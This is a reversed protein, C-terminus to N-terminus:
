VGTDIQDDSEPLRQSTYWPSNRSVLMSKAITRSYFKEEKHLKWIHAEENQFSKPGEHGCDHPSRCKTLMVYRQLNEAFSHFRTQLPLACTNPCSDDKNRVPRAGVTGTEIECSSRRALHPVFGICTTFCYSWCKYQTCSRLSKDFSFGRNPTKEPPGLKGKMWILRTPLPLFKVNVPM